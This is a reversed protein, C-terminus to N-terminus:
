GYLRAALEQRLGKTATFERKPPTPRENGVEICNHARLHERHTSRSGIERGDIISRYPTIDPMVMFTRAAPADLPMWTGGLCYWKKGDIICSNDGEKERLQGEIMVYAKRVM